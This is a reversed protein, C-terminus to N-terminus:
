DVPEIYTAINSLGTTPVAIDLVEAGGVPDNALIGRGGQGLPRLTDVENMESPKEGMVGTESTNAKLYRKAAADWDYDDIDVHHTFRLGLEGIPVSSSLTM